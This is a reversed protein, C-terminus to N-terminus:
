GYVARLWEEPDIGLQKLLRKVVVSSIEDNSRHHGLTFIRGGPRYVTVESGKGQRVECGFRDALFNLL